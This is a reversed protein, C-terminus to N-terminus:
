RICTNSQDPYIQDQRESTAGLLDPILNIASLYLKITPMDVTWIFGFKHSQRGPKYSRALYHSYM